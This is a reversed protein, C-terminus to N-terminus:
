PAPHPPDAAGLTPSGELLVPLNDRAPRLQDVASELQEVPGLTPPSYFLDAQEPGIWGFEEATRHGVRVESLDVVERETRLSLPVDVAMLEAFRQPFLPTAFPEVYGEPHLAQFSDPHYRDLAGLAHGLEHAVTLVAYAANTENLDVMSVAIRGTESGRSHAAVDGTGHGYLVYARVGYESVDVGFDEAIGHFYRPWRWANWLRAVTSLSPDDLPPPAVAVPWPGRVEVQMWDDPGGYRAREASYWPGIDRFSTMGPRAAAGNLTQVIPTVPVGPAVLQVVLAKVRADPAVRAEDAQVFSGVEYLFVAFLFLFFLQRLRTQRVRSHGEQICRACIQEGRADEICRDCVPTGCVGCHRAALRHPHFGCFASNSRTAPEKTIVVVGGAERLRAATEEAADPSSTIRCTLPLENPDVPREGPLSVVESGAQGKPLRVLVVRYRPRPDGTLPEEVSEPPEVLIPM